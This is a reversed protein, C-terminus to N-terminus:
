QSFDLQSVGQNEQSSNENIYHFLANLLADRDSYEAEAIFYSEFTLANTLTLKMFPPGLQTKRNFEANLWLFPKYHKAIKHLATKSSVEPIKSSLNNKIVLNELEGDGGAMITSFYNINTIAQKLEDADHFDSTVLIIEKISDLNSSENKLIIAQHTTPFLGTKLNQSDLYNYLACGPITLFTIILLLKKM